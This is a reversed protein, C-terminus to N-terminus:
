KRELRNIRESKTRFDYVRFMPVITQKRKAPIPCLLCLMYIYFLLGSPHIFQHEINIHQIWQTRYWYFKFLSDHWYKSNVIEMCYGLSYITYFTLLLLWGIVNSMAGYVEKMWSAFLSSAILNLWAYLRWM